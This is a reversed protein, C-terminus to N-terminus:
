LDCMPIGLIELWVVRYSVVFNKTISRFKCFISHIGSNSTFNKFENVYDFSIWVWMGGVYRTKICSSEM